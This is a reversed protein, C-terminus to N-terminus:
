YGSVFTRVDSRMTKWWFMECIKGIMRYAGLHGSLPSAHFESILLERLDKDGLVVVYVGSGVRCVLGDVM